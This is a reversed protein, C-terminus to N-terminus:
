TKSQKKTLLLGQLKEQEKLQKEFRQCISHLEEITRNKLKLKLNRDELVSLLSKCQECEKKSTSQKKLQLRLLQIEETLQAVEKQCDEIQQQHEWSKEKFLESIQHKLKSIKEDRIYVQQQSEEMVSTVREEYQNTLEQTAKEYQIKSEKLLQEKEEVLSRATELNQRTTKHGNVESEIDKAYQLTKNKIEKNLMLLAADKEKLLAKLLIIEKELAQLKSVSLDDDKGSVQIGKSIFTKRTRESRTNSPFRQNAKNVVFRTTLRVNHIGLGLGDISPLSGSKQIKNSLFSQPVILRSLTEEVENAESRPIKKMRTTM